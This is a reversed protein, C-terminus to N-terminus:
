IASMLDAVFRQQMAFARAPDEDISSARFLLGDPIQGTLALRIADMRKQLRDKVIEDGITLWYTVPERRSKLVTTLRRVEIAGFDTPLNGESTSTM